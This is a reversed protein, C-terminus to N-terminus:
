KEGKLEHFRCVTVMDLRDQRFERLDLVYKQEFDDGVYFFDYVFPKGKYRIIANYNAMPRWRVTDFPTNVRTSNRVLCSKMEIVKYRGSDFSNTFGVRNRMYPKTFLGSSYRSRAKESFYAESYYVYLDNNEKETFLDFKYIKYNATGHYIASANKEIAEDSMQEISSVWGDPMVIDRNIDKENCPKIANALGKDEFFDTRVVPEIYEINKQQRFDDLFANCFKEDPKLWEVPTSFIEFKRGAIIEKVVAAKASEPARVIVDVAMTPSAVAVLVLFMSAKTMYNKKIVVWKM